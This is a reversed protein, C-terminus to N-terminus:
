RYNAHSTWDSQAVIVIKRNDRVTIRKQRYYIGRFLGQLFPTLFQFAVVCKESVKKSIKIIGFGLLLNALQM